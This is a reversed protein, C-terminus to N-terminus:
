DHFIDDKESKSLGNELRTTWQNLKSETLTKSTGATQLDDVYLQHWPVDDCIDECIYDLVVVFLFPSLASGQHLGITVEFSRSVDQACKVKTQSRKYMDAILKIYAEPLKRYRLSNYILERPVADYAKELDVFTAHFSRQKEGLKEM